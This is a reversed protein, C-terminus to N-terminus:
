GFLGDVVRWRVGSLPYRGRHWSNPLTGQSECTCPQADCRGGTSARITTRKEGCKETQCTLHVRKTQFPAIPIIELCIASVFACIREVFLRKRSDLCPSYGSMNSVLRWGYCFWMIRASRGFRRDGIRVRTLVRFHKQKSLRLLERAHTRQTEINLGAAGEAPYIVPVKSAVGIKLM